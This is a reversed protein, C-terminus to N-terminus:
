ALREIHWGANELLEIDKDTVHESFIALCLLDTPRTVGVFLRKCHEFATSTLNTAKQNGTLIPLLSKLDHTRAFTELVLTAAHTEGKVGHISDFWLSIEATVGRHLLINEAEAEIVASGNAESESHGTWALFERVRPANAEPMITKLLLLLSEIKANWTNESINPDSRLFDWMLKKFEPYSDGAILFDKLETRTKILPKQKDPTARRVAELVGGTIRMTPEAFSNDKSVLARAELVFGYLTDPMRAKRSLDSQFGKWYDGIAEPFNKEKPEKLNKRGGVVCVRNKLRSSEPVESLVLDAFSTVVRHISGRDFVFITHRRKDRAVTAKLTQPEVISLPSAFRAIDDGFRHTESLPLSPRRGFLEPAPISGADFNFIAQNKDGFKQMVCGDASFLTELIRDQSENTDQLEDVFVWPFRHRIISIVYKRHALCAEAYGYMDDFRFYGDRALREKLRKLLQGTASEPGPFLRNSAAPNTVVLQPGDFRLGGIITELGENRNKLAFQAKSFEPKSFSALARAVFKDNDIATIEVGEQRLYPLALFQDVFTQFTGIFHPYGLLQALSQSQGLRTEIERRAVNTHSLVLVGRNSWRWKKALLALKATLITTKGCGPGAQIDCSTSSKLVAIKEASSLDIALETALSTIEDDSFKLQTPM